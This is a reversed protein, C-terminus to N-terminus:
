LLTLYNHQTRLNFRINVTISHIANIKLFLNVFKAIVHFYFTTLTFLCSSKEPLVHNFYRYWMAMVSLHDLCSSVSKLTPSLSDEKQSEYLFYTELHGGGGRVRSFDWVRPCLWRGFSNTRILLHFDTLYIHDRAQRM